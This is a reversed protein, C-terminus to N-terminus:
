PVLDLVVLFLEDTVCPCQLLFYICFNVDLNSQDPRSKYGRGPFV